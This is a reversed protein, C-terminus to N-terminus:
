GGRVSAVFRVRDGPAFLAPLRRNADFPIVDTRGLLWWGGPSAAPYVASYPGAIAVSGAPVSTRPTDRRALRLQEDVGTLYGFGPSFGLFAVGYTRAEHRRIVEDVDLGTRRAVEGLDTGDYRVPVVHERGSDTRVAKPVDDFSPIATNPEFVVLVSREAPVVDVVGVLKQQRVGAAIRQADIADDAALLVACDGLLKM